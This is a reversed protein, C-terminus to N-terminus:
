ALRNLARVGSSRKSRLTDAKPYSFSVAPKGQLDKFSVGDGDRNQLTFKPSETEIELM